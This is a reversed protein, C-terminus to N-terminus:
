EKRRVAGLDFWPIGSRQLFFPAAASLVAGLFLGQSSIGFRLYEM